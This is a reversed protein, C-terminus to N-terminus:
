KEATVEQIASVKARPKRPARATAPAKATAPKKAVVKAKPPTKVATDVASFEVEPAKTARKAPVKAAKKVVPEPEHFLEEVDLEPEPLPEDVPSLSKNVGRTASFKLVSYDDIVKSGNGAFQVRHGKHAQPYFRGFGTLMLQNGGVVIAMLEAMSEDYVQTVTKVPLGSRHAVRALFDRKSVREQEKVTM